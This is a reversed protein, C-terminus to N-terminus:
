GVGPWIDLSLGLSCIDMPSVDTGLKTPHFKYLALSKSSVNLYLKSSDRERRAQTLNSPTTNSSVSGSVLCLGRRVIIVLYLVRLRSGSGAWGRMCGVSGPDSVDGSM